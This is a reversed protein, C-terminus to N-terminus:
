CQWTDSWLRSGGTWFPGVGPWLQAMLSTPQTEPLLNLFPSFHQTVAAPLSRHSILSATRCGGLDTCLSPLFYQLCLGSRRPCGTSSGVTCCPSTAQLISCGWPSVASLPGLRSSSGTIRSQQLLELLISGATGSGHLLQAQFAAARPFGTCSWNLFSLIMRHSPGWVSCPCLIVIPCHCLHLATPQAAQPSSVTSLPHSLLSPM